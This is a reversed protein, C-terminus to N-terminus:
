SYYNSNKKLNLKSIRYTSKIKQNLYYEAPGGLNFWTYNDLKVNNYFNKLNKILEKNM